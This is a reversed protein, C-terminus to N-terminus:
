RPEGRSPLGPGVAASRILEARPYRAQLQPWHVYLVDVFPLALRASLSLTEIRTISEVFVTRRGQIKGLILFPVAVGAGTSLIVEPQQRRLVRWSLLANRILNPVNRNTPSHAWAVREDKLAERTTASDFTVWTRRHQRWFPELQLLGKFHGGSSCVLLLDM